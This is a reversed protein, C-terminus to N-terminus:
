RARGESEEIRIFPTMQEAGPAAGGSQDPVGRAAMASSETGSAVYPQPAGSTVGEGTLMPAPGGNSAGMAAAARLVEPPPEIPSGFSKSAAMEVPGGAQAASTGPGIIQLGASAGSSSTDSIIIKIEM